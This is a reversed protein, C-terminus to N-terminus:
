VETPKCLWIVFRINEPNNVPQLDNVASLFPAFLSEYTAEWNVHTFLTNKEPKEESLIHGQMEKNSIKRHELSVLTEESVFDYSNNEPYSSFGDRDLYGNLVVKKSWDFHLLEALLFYTHLSSLEVDNIFAQKVENSLNDPMGRPEVIPKICVDKNAEDVIRHLTNDGTLLAILYPKLTSYTANNEVPISGSKIWGENTKVEINIILDYMPPIDNLNHM